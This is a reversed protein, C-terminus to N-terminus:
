QEDMLRRAMAVAQRRTTIEENLQANYLRRLARGLRPGEALGMEKLDSGTVFPKPSVKSKPIGGVRWAIRRAQTDRGTLRLEELRWLLRLRRFHASAMIRKLNCLPMDAAKRWDDLHESFFCFKSRMWNPGGWRRIIRRICVPRLEALMAGLATGACGVKAVGALRFMAAPWLDGSGFLEPLIQEALHLQRLKEMAEVASRHQLMKLLEDFIREGSIATINPAHRRIAAATTPAIAFGLRGAFRVARIMRLYDEAFRRDARGITRIVRRRLDKRGGVYDIVKGRKGALPDFFMGNITFDRRLADQRPGSFSVSDPRRGDSYSDDSRFTAVEVARGRHIVVAVGFKAGILLVHSFLKRVQQPTASAAIDYDTSRLGLLMDRVCGGALLAEFGAERLRKLVWVATARDAPKAM